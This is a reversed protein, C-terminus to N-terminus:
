LLLRKAGSISSGKKVTHMHTPVTHMHMAVTHRHTDVHAGLQDPAHIHINVAM